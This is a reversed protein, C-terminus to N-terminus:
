IIKIFRKINEIIETCNKPVRVELSSIEKKILQNIELCKMYKVKYNKYNRVNSEETGVEREFEDDIEDLVGSFARSSNNNRMINSSNKVMELENRIKRMDLLLAENELM